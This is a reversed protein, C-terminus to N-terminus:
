YILSNVYMVIDSANTEEESFDKESGKLLFASKIIGEATYRNTSNLAMTVQKEQTRPKFLEIIGKIGFICGGLWVFSTFAAAGGEVYKDGATAFLGTPPNAADVTEGTAQVFLVGLTCAGVGILCDRGANDKVMGKRSKTIIIPATPDSASVFVKVSTNTRLTEIVQNKLTPDEINELFIYYDKAISTSQALTARVQAEVSMASAIALFLSYIFIRRM